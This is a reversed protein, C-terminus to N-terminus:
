AEVNILMVEKNAEFDSPSICETVVGKIEVRRRWFDILNIEKGEVRSAVLVGNVREESTEILFAFNMPWTMSM